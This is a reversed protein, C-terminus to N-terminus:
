DGQGMLYTICDILQNFEEKTPAPNSGCTGMGKCRTCYVGECTKIKDPIKPKEMKSTNMGQAVDDIFRELLKKAKKPDKDIINKIFDLNHLLKLFINDLDNSVESIDPKKYLKIM